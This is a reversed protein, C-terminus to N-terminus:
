RSSASGKLAAMLANLAVTYRADILVGDEFASQAHGILVEPGNLLRPAFPQLCLRLSNQAREGGSRGATASMIAIPKGAWPKGKTRSVWDLANKLVGSLNKNYEPTSIIVADAASIQSALKLVKIPIGETELDGSYLPLNLDAMEARVGIVKAANELLLTNVSGRQLSGSIALLKM